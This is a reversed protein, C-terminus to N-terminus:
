ESSWPEKRRSRTRTQGRHLSLAQESLLLLLAFMISSVTMVMLGALCAPFGWGIAPAVGYTTDIAPKIAFFQWAPMVTAALPLIASLLGLLWAPLRGLAQGSSLSLAQGSRLSLLGSTGLLLWCIGVAMTQLRFEPTMLSSPSWAPPLLQLSVPVALLSALVRLPWPYRLWRSGILLAVSVAVVFPPLYFLQRMMKLSGDLVDPLFKVFEGMDAGSLTLAATPHAIWPGYYGITASVWGLPLLLRLRAWAQRNDIRDSREPCADGLNSV